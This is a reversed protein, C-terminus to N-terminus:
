ENGGNGPCPAGEVEICELIDNIFINLGVVVPCSAGDIDTYELNDNIFINLKGRM